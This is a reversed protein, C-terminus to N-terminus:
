WHQELKGEHWRGEKWSNDAARKLTGEGHPKDNMWEGEYINGNPYVRRGFGEMKGDFFEGEYKSQDPWIM